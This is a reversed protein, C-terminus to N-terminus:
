ELATVWEGCDEAFSWFAELEADDIIREDFSPPEISGFAGLESVAAEEAIEVLEVLKDEHEVEAADAANRKREMRQVHREALLMLINEMEDWHEWATADEVGSADLEADLEDLRRWLYMDENHRKM